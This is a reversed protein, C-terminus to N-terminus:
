GGLAAFEAQLRQKVANVDLPARLEATATPKAMVQYSATRNPLRFKVGCNMTTTADAEADAEAACNQGGLGDASFEVNLKIHVKAAPTGVVTNVVDVNVSCNGVFDTCDIKEGLVVVSVQTLADFPQGLGGVANELDTQFKKLADGGVPSVRLEAGLKAGTKGDLMAPAFSVLRYPKATTVKLAGLPGAVDYVETGDALKSRVPVALPNALKLTRRLADAAKAPSLLGPADVPLGTADARVWSSGYQDSGNAGNAKWYDASAALYLQKDASVLQLVRGEIPLSGQASGNKTIRFRLEVATGSGDKLTSGYALAPAAALAQLAGDVATRQEGRRDAKEREVASIGAAGDVAVQCGSLVLGLLVVLGVGWRARM